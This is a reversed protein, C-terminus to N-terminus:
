KRQFEPSGLLLGAITSAEPDSPLPLPENNDPLESRYRRAMDGPATKVAAIQPQQYEQSSRPGNSPQSMAANENIQKLIAAQTQPTAPGNLLVDALWNEKQQPTIQQTVALSQRSLRAILGDMDTAIGLKNDAIDVAINLRDLLDGTNVWASSTLAYGNPTQCGYFPMGLQNLAQLEQVPRVVEGGTARVASLVFEDPTKIKARYADKSWFESSAFLTRLVERIDGDTRLWTAVMSDVLAPSPNDSVFRVALQQSIHHATVPSTALLHLVELGEDQGSGAITKGLVTKAGPEHRKPNFNFGVVANKQGANKQGPNDQAMTPPNVGWGTFVEAVQSVDQQTYGGDVGLTHLEMLERAYNENVGKSRAPQVAAPPTAPMTPTVGPSAAPPAVGAQAQSSQQGQSRQGAESHPGISQQNDLYTLMAPSEATAVLLDEFRGMANPRISSREYEVLYWPTFPQKHLYVNFHNLWFDTMVAELQRNSYVDRLFRDALLEGTVLQEPNRMALLVEKQQPTLDALLSRKEPGSLSRQLNILDAPMMALIKAMRAAPPLNLISAVAPDPAHSHAKPGPAHSADSSTHLADDTAISKGQGVPAASPINFSASERMAPSGTQMTAPSSAAIPSPGSAPVAPQKESQKQQYMAIRSIYIAHTEPNDPIPIKGEAAARILPEPPFNLLLDHESLNMAPYSDLRADLEQDDITEPDLQQDIWRDVGIAEVREVDGPRPGFTLRNLAQLARAHPQLRSATISQSTHRAHAFMPPTTSCVLSCILASALLRVPLLRTPLGATTIAIMRYEATEITPSHRNRM